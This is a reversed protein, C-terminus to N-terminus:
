LASPEAVIYWDDRIIDYATPCYDLFLNGEADYPQQRDKVYVQRLAREYTQSRTMRIVCGRDSLWTPNTVVLDHKDTQDFFHRVIEHLQM